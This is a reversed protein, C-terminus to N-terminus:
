ISSPTTVVTQQSGKSRRYAWYWWSSTQSWTSSSSPETWGQTCISAATSWNRLVEADIVDFGAQRGLNTYIFPVGLSGMPMYLSHVDKGMVSVQGDPNNSHFHIRAASPNAIPNGQKDVARVVLVVPINPQFDDFHQVGNGLNGFTDSIM